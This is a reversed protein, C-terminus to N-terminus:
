SRPRAALRDARAVFALALPSADAPLNYGLPALTLAPHGRAAMDLVRGWDVRGPQIPADYYASFARANEALFANAEDNVRGLERVSKLAGVMAALLNDLEVPDFLWVSM